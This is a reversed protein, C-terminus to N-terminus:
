NAYYLANIHRKKPQLKPRLRAPQTHNAEVGILFADILILALAWFAHAQM